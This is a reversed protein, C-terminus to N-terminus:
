GRRGPGTAGPDDPSPDVSSPDASSLDAASPDASPAAEGPDATADGASAATGTGTGTGGGIGTATGSGIDTGTGTDAAGNAELAGATAREPGASQAPLHAVAPRRGWLDLANLPACGAIVKTFSVKESALTLATMAAARWALGATTRAGTAAATGLLAGLANAGADGLMAREGLDEPLLAAAAGLGAFALTNAAGVAAGATPGDFAARRLVGPVAAFAAGKIARGPRLDLLNAANAAGAIVVAALAKDTAPGGRRVLAGGLVGVAGIGATKVLGTTVVGQQMLANVHGRIGRRDSSGRLDDYVGFAGAGLASALGAARVRGPLGPAVLVGAAAAAAYVPGELLTVPEGRHNVRAWREEALVGNSGVRDRGLARAARLGYRAAAAGAAAALLSRAAQRM